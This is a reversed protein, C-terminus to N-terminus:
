MRIYTHPKGKRGYIQGEYTAGSKFAISSARADNMIASASRFCIPLDTFRVDAGAM